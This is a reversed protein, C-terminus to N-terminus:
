AAERALHKVFSAAAKEAAELTFHSSLQHSHNGWYLIFKRGREVHQWRSTDRYQEHKIFLKGKVHCIDTWAVTRGEANPTRDLIYIPLTNNM